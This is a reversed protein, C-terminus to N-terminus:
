AGEILPAWWHRLIITGGVVSLAPPEILKTDKEKEPSFIKSLNGENKYPGYLKWTTKSQQYYPFILDQFYNEKHELLRDEFEKFEVSRDSNEKGIGSVWGKIGGGRWTREAFT